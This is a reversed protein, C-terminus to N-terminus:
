SETQTRSLELSNMPQDREQEARQRGRFRGVSTRAVRVSAASRSIVRSPQLHALRSVEGRVAGGGELVRRRRGLGLLEVSVREIAGEPPADSHAARSHKSCCGATEPAAPKM